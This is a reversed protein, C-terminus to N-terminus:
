DPRSRALAVDGATLRKAFEPDSLFGVSICPHADDPTGGSEEAAVIRIPDITMPVWHAGLAELFTHIERARAPSADRAIETVNMLSFMVTGRNKFASLFRKRLVVNESCRRIAWHDLYILPSEAEVIFEVDDGNKQWSVM